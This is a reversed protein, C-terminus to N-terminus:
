LSLGLLVSASIAVSFGAFLFMINRGGKIEKYLLVGWLASFVSPGCNAIPFSVAQSLVSTALFYFLGAVGWMWGSVLGPLILNAYVRPQNRKIVCYVIFYFLTALFIGTYFSHMYEIYNRNGNLEGVYIVPTFCQGYLIGSFCALCIGIAHRKAKSMNDFFDSNDEENKTLSIRRYDDTRVVLIEEDDQSLTEGQASEEFEEPEEEIPRPKPSSTSDVFLYFLASLMALSIGIYNYTQNSPVEPKLGLRKENHIQIHNQDSSFLFLSLMIFSVLWIKSHGL